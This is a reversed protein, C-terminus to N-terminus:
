KNIEASFWTSSTKNKAFFICLMSWCHLILLMKQTSDQAFIWFATKTLFTFIKHLNRRTKSSRTFCVEPFLALCLLCKCKFQSFMIMYQNETQLKWGTVDCVLSVSLTWPQFYFSLMARPGSLKTGKQLCPLTLVTKCLKECFGFQWTSTM